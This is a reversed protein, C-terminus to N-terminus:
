RDEIKLHLQWRVSKCSIKVGRASCEYRLSSFYILDTYYQLGVSRSIVLRNRSSGEQFVEFPWIEMVTSSLRM